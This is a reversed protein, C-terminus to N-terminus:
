LCSFVGGGGGGGVFGGGGGGWFFVFFVSVRLNSISKDLSLYFIGSPMFHTLPFIKGMRNRIM